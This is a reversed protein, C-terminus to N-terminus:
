TGPLYKPLVDGGVTWHMGGAGCAGTYVIQQGDAIVGGISSLTITVIGETSSLGAVAISRAHDGSWANAPSLGLSENDVGSLDGTSCAIGLATRALNALDVAERVKQRVAHDQYAPVAVSALIGIIAVIIMMEIITLGRQAAVAPATAGRGAGCVPRSGDPEARGAGIM